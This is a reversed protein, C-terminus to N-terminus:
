FLSIQNLNKTKSLVPKKAEEKKKEPKAGLTDTWDIIKLGGDETPRLDYGLMGWEDTQKCIYDEIETRTLHPNGKELKQFFAERMEVWFKGEPKNRFSM